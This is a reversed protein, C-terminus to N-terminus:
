NELFIIDELNSERILVWPLEAGIENELLVLWKGDKNINFISRLEKNRNMNISASAVISGLWGSGMGLVGGLISEGLSNLGLFSFTTLNTMNSFTLGSIFGFPILWNSMDKQRIKQDLKPNLLRVKEITRIIDPNKNIIDEEQTELKTASPKIVITQSLAISKERLSNILNLSEELQDFILICKTM